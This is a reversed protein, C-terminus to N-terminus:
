GEGAALGRGGSRSTGEGGPMREAGAGRRRKDGPRAGLPQESPLDRLGSSKAGKGRQCKSVLASRPYQCESRSHAGHMGGGFSESPPNWIPPVLACHRPPAGKVQNGQLRRQVFHVTSRGPRPDFWSPPPTSRLDASVRSQTAEVQGSCKSSRASECWWLCGLDESARGSAGRGARGQGVRLGGLVQSIGERPKAPSSGLERLATL